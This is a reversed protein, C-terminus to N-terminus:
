FVVLLVSEEVAASLEVQAVTAERTALRREVEVEVPM